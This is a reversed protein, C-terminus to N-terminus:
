ALARGTGDRIVSQTMKKYNDPQQNWGSPSRESVPVATSGDRCRYKDTKHGDGAESKRYAPGAKEKYRVPILM